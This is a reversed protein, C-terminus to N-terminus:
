YQKRYQETNIPAPTRHEWYSDAPKKKLQLADHGFTRMVFGIPTMAIYYFLSLILRTIFWGMATAFYMWGTHIYRLVPRINLLALLLAVVGITAPVTWPILPKKSIFFQHLFWNLAGIGSFIGGLIFNFRRIERESADKWNV